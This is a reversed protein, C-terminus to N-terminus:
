TSNNTQTTCDIYSLFPSRVMDLFRGCFQLGLIFGVGLSLYNLSATGTPEKYVDEWVM